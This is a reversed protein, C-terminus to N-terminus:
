AYSTQRPEAAVDPPRQIEVFTPAEAGMAKVRTAVNTVHYEVIALLEPFTALATRASALTARITAPKKARVDDISLRDVDDIVRQANRAGNLADRANRVAM